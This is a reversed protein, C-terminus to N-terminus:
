QHIELYLEGINDSVYDDLIKVDLYGDEGELTFEYNHSQNYEGSYYGSMNEQTTGDLRLVVDSVRIPFSTSSCGYKKPYAYMFFSDHSFGDFEGGPCTGQEFWDALSWKTYTGYCVIRYIKGSHLWPGRTWQNRVIGGGISEVVETKSPVIITSLITSSSSSSASSMTSPESSTELYRTSSSSDSSSSTSVSSVSSESSSSSEIYGKALEVISNKYAGFFSVSFTSQLGKIESSSMVNM